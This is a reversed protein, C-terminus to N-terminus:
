SRRRVARGATAVLGDVLQPSWGRLDSLRERDRETLAAVDSANVVGLIKVMQRARVRGVGRLSVLGLLDAKCGNRMRRHSEDIADILTRHANKDRSFLEEDEALIRRTAYLMREASDVLGHLDGPQVGWEDEIVELHKEEIWSELVLAVKMRGGKDEPGSDRQVLFERGHERLKEEMWEEENKRLRLPRLSPTSSVLHLPSLPSIQGFEDDGTLISMARRLGDRIIQGSVPNIYLQSVRRGFTTAKYEMSLSEPLDPEYPERISAKQFGFIPSGKRPSDAYRWVEPKAGVDLIGTVQSASDVWSPLDDGWDEEEEEIPGQEIIRIAVEDSEGFREIMGNNVLWSVAEDIRVVLSESGLQNALFTKSFFNGLAHRDGIGGTAIMSLVHSLLHTDEEASNAGLDSLKSSVEEVEGQLYREVLKESSYPSYPDHEKVLIWSEGVDDYKPRGARGMMQLVERIPLPSTRGQSADWRKCDRIVVTRSPLNVGQALTPTAVVCLLDGRRFANEVLNRHKPTLGAHHFAVGGRLSEALSKVTRPSDEKRLISDALRDWNEADEPGLGYGGDTVMERAHQSLERAEKKTSARTSVFVLLQGGGSVTDQLISNLPNEPNKSEISRAEPLSEDGPGDVRHVNLEVDRSVGETITGYHLAIPRWDSTVLEADLWGSVESANGVTASLAIIQVDPRNHRLRSLVIELTPGRDPNDLLHFEDSIVIGVRDMLESRTRLISDLKESTCVLIDSEEIMSTEGGKDGVALGVRLGVASGIERLEELKENALAKLPVLYLALNGKLDTVLRHAITLHAVLSKGSATPATLMVNRGSLAPPLAEAQPPFLEEIGWEEHLMEVLRDDLDLDELRRSPRDSSQAM